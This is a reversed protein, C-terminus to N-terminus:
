DIQNQMPVKSYQIVKAKFFTLYDKNLKVFSLDVKLHKLWVQTHCLSVYFILYVHM